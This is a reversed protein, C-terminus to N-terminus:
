GHLDYKQCSETDVNQFHIFLYVIMFLYKGQYYVLKPFTQNVVTGLYHSFNSWTLWYFIDGM